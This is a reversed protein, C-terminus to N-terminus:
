AMTELVAARVRPHVLPPLDDAAFWGIDVHEEPAVNTPVGEWEGVLWASLVAEGGGPDVTVRCLHSTSETAIRVGLEEFLERALAEPESEGTEMVGGPLDWVDPFAKKDPRRHALLVRGERVLAGVVVQVM